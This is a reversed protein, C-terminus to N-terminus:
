PEVPTFAWGPLHGRSSLEDIIEALRQGPDVSLAARAYVGAHTGWGLAWATWAASALAAGRFRGSALAALGRLLHLAQHLRAQDPRPGEGALFLPGAPYDGTEEWELQAELVQHAAGAGHCWHALAVDRVSPRALCWLLLAAREDTLIDDDLSEFELATEWATAVDTLEMLIRAGQANLDGARDAGPCTQSRLVDAARETEALAESVRRRREKPARVLTSGGAQDGAPTVLGAPALRSIEELSRPSPTREDRYSAWGNEAIALADIVFLGCADARIRLADLVERAGSQELEGDAYVALVVADVDPVRCVTGITTAAFADVDHAVRDVRLMALSRGARFPIAVVSERPVYGALHPILALLEASSDATIITRM